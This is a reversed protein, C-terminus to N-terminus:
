LQALLLSLHLAWTSQWALECMHKRWNGSSLWRITRVWGVKGPEQIPFLFTEVTRNMASHVPQWGNGELRRCIHAHEVVGGVGGM